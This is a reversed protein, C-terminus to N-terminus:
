GSFNSSPLLASKSSIPFAFFTTLPLSDLATCSPTIDSLSVVRFVGTEVRMSIALAAPTDVPCTPLDFGTWKVFDNSETLNDGHVRLNVFSGKGLKTSAIADGPLGHRLKVFFV